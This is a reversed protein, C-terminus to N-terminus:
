QVARKDLLFFFVFYQAPQREVFFCQNIILGGYNKAFKHDVARNEAVVVFIWRQPYLIIFFVWKVVKQYTYARATSHLCQWTFQSVSQERKVTKIAHKFSSFSQSYEWLCGYNEKGSLLKTMANELSGAAFVIHKVIVHLTSFTGPPVGKYPSNHLM